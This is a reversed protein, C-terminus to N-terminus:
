GEGGDIRTFTKYHDRTMYIMGDSSYLIRDAGRTGGSYHIDAEYWTRGKASPLQRERNYFVDGGISSDPAVKDLNGKQAVWGLERAEAKTLYYDPLEGHELLHLAVTRFEDLEGNDNHLAEFEGSLAIGSAPADGDSSTNGRGDAAGNPSTAENVSPQQDLVDNLVACGTVATFM